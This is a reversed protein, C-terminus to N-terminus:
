RKAILYDAFEALDSYVPVEPTSKTKTGNGTRVLIPQCAINIAAELDRSSDGVFATHEPAKDLATLADALLGPRPKRCQCNDDPLHPCFHINLPSGGLDVLARTMKTHIAELAKLDYLGRGIGSQNTCVAVAVHQQLRAIAELSGPIPHWESSHKIYDESDFNIVGDRDLLVCEIHDLAITMSLIYCSVPM